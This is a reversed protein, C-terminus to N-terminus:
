AGWRRRSLPLSCSRLGTSRGLERSTRREEGAVVGSSKTGRQRGDGATSADKEACGCEYRARLSRPFTTGAEVEQNQPCLRVKDWFGTPDQISEKYLEEYQETNAHAVHGSGEVSNRHSIPFSPVDYNHETSMPKSSPPDYTPPHSLSPPLQFALLPSSPLLLFSQALPSCTWGCCWSRGGVRASERPCYGSAKRREAEVV